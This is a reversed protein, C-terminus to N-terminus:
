AIIGLDAALMTQNVLDSGTNKVALEQLVDYMDNRRRFRTTKSASHRQHRTKCVDKTIQWKNASKGKPDLWVDLSKGLELRGAMSIKSRDVEAKCKAGLSHHDRPGEGNLYEELGTIPCGTTPPAAGGGGGGDVDDEDDDDMSLGLGSAAGEDSWDVVAELDLWLRSRVEGKAVVKKIRNSLSTFQSKPISLRAGKAKVEVLPGAVYLFLIAEKSLWTSGAQKDERYDRDSRVHIWGEPLAKAM